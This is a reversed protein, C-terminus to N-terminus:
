GLTFSKGIKKRREVDGEHARHAVCFRINEEIELEFWKKKAMGLLSNVQMSNLYDDHPCYMPKMSNEVKFNEEGCKSKNSSISQFIEDDTM